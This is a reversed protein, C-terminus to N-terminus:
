VDSVPLRASPCFAFPWVPYRNIVGQGTAYRKLATRKLKGTLGGFFLVHM